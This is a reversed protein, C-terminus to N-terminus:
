GKYPKFNKRHQSCSLYRYKKSKITVELNELAAKRKCRTKKATAAQCQKQGVSLDKIDDKKVATSVKSKAAPKPNVAVKPKVEAKVAVKKPTEKKVEVVPEKKVPLKESKSKEEEPEDEKRLIFAGAVVLLALPIFNTLSINQPHTLEVTSKASGEQVLVNSTARKLKLNDTEALLQGSLLFGALILLLTRLHKKIIM